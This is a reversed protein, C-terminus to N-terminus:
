HAFDNFKKVNIVTLCSLMSIAPSSKICLGLHIFQLVIHLSRHAWSRSSDEEDNTLTAKVWVWM